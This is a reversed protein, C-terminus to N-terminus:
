PELIYERFRVFAFYATKVYEGKENRSEEVMRESCAALVKYGKRILKEIIRFSCTFEGQVMVVCQKPDSLDTVKEAYTEALANVEAEDAEAPVSPFPIDVIEGYEAAAASQEKSWKLAPHNSLNIFM